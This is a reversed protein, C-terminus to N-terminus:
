FNFVQCYFDFHVNELKTKSLQAFLRAQYRKSVTGTALRKLGSGM